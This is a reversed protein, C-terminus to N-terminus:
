RCRGCTGRGGCTCSNQCDEGNGCMTAFTEKKRPDLASRCIWFQMMMLVVSVIGSLLMTLVLWPVSMSKKIASPLMLLHVISWLSLAAVVIAAFYYYYCFDYAWSPVQIVSEM